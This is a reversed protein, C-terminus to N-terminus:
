NRIELAKATLESKILANASSLPLQTANLLNPNEFPNSSLNFLAETGDDFLIYKHTANRITYDSNETYIYNRKSTDTDKLLAKFSQSDNIELTNVGALNAITAFLDTSNILANETDNIRIVDKGSVIMPVNVGGQYVTGKVRRSNYEQAVQNPTGNDGIFIVITNEKEEDTMSNILRGMETDLAELAAMYYPLPNADISAQDSALAGQFHLNAPPLHFPTHPANYALWLFWPKSQQGIWDIALDTFKTTTYATSNSQQGNETLTWNYYSQVSGGLLGVYHPIGMNNPHSANNSLHWKGIIAQSYTSNTKTNIYSQLSTESTSLNNGAQLVGTRLGYKGTLIGARTPSCTPNSWVNTFKVGTDMLKKLNPMNPKISGIPYGPCADLGMDDAIILLINPQQPTDDVVENDDVPDSIPESENSCATIFLLTFILLSSLKM